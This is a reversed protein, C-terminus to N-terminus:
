HLDAVTQEYKISQFDVSYESKKDEKISFTFESDTDIYDSVDEDYEGINYL